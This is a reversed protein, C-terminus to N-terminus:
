RRKGVLCRKGPRRRRAGASHYTQSARARHRGIPQRPCRGRAAVNRTSRHTRGGSRLRSFPDAHIRGPLRTIKARASAWYSTSTNSPKRPPRVWISAPSRQQALGTTPHLSTRWLRNAAVVAGPGDVPGHAAWTRRRRAPTSASFLIMSPQRKKVEAAFDDVPLNQGLYHIRYGARRLYISLLLAGMEHQETPACGVWILPGNGNNPIARLLAALRQLLYNSAFHEATASLEGNRWREGIETLVPLILSEGVREVPYMAFAEDIVAEATEEDFNCTARLLDAQLSEFDRVQDRHNAASGTREGGVSGAAGPLVAQELGDARDVITDFWNVAQSISMGADVQTKLWRIVAVDRESYLRYGSDSRQPQCVNYRREWARLTSPSINTAQVVAKINYLPTTAYENLRFGPAM